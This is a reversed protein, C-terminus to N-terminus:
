YGFKQRIADRLEPAASALLQDLKSDVPSSLVRAHKSYQAADINWLMKSGPEPRSMSHKQAIERAEAHTMSIHMFKTSNVFRKVEEIRDGPAIMYKITSRNLLRAQRARGDPTAEFLCEGIQNVLDNFRGLDFPRSELDEFSCHALYSLDDQLMKLGADRQYFGALDAPLVDKLGGISNSQELEKYKQDILDVIDRPRADARSLVESRVRDIAALVGKRDKYVAAPSDSRMLLQEITSVVKDCDVHYKRAQLWAWWEKILDDPLLYEGGQKHPEVLFYFSMKGSCVLPLVRGYLLEMDKRVSHIFEVLSLTKKIYPDHRDNRHEPSMQCAAYANEVAVAIKWRLSQSQYDAVEYSGKVSKGKKASKEMSAAKGDLGIRGKLLWVALNHKHSADKFRDDPVATAGSEFKIGKGDIGSVGVHQAPYLSNPINARKAMFDAPKKFVDRLIMANLMDCAKSADDPNDSYALKTLEARVDKDQPMLFTIGPKGKLSGLTLDACTGRLLQALEPDVSEVYDMIKCFTKFTKDAM